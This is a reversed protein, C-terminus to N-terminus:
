KLQALPAIGKPEPTGEPLLKKWSDGMERFARFDQPAYAFELHPTALPRGRHHYADVASLIAGNAMLSREVPYPAQKHIFFSQVAHALARFLNRLKWPGPYFQTARIEKEGKLRCAFNWRMASAGLKAVYGKTGDKYTILIVHPEHKAWGAYNPPDNLRTTRTYPQGIELQMAAAALEFPWKGADAGRWVEDGYLVEIQSIGTEGGKRAEVISQLTEVAHIGYNEFQGGHVMVAEAIEANEPVELEPLRQALPVSSGAMLPMKLERATDYMEKALDWRYCLHKDNFYPVARGARRMVAVSEDFFRKRPYQTVWEREMPYSGHEGIALVADVALDKGGLCLAEDISKFLPIRYDKSIKRSMDTQRFQDGWFSVIEVSPDIVRGNFPYKELFNEVLVHAHSLARFETFLCAVRPRRKAVVPAANALSIGGLFAGGWAASQQLFHRRNTAASNRPPVDRM